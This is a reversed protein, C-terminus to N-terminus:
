DIIEISNIINDARNKMRLWDKEPGAFTIFYTKGEKEEPLIILEKYHHSPYDEKECVFEFAFKNDKLERNLIIFNLDKEQASEKFINIIEDSSTENDLYGEAVYLQSFVKSKLYHAFFLVKLDYEETTKEPFLEKLLNEDQTEKWDSSYKVKIKGDPTIFEENLLENKPESSEEESFVAEFKSIEEESFISGASSFFKGSWFYIALFLMGFVIIFLLFITLVKWTNKFM